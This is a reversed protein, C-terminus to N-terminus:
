RCGALEVRRGEAASLRALRLWGLARAARTLGEGTLAGERAAHVFRDLVLVEAPVAPLSLTYRGEAGSWSLRRPLAARLGGDEAEVQLECASSGAPGAFLSLQALGQELEVV